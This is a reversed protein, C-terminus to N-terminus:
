LPDCPTQIPNSTQFIQFVPSKRLSFDIQIMGSEFDEGRENGSFFDAVQHGSKFVSLGIGSGQATAESVCYTYAGIRFFLINEGIHPSTSREFIFFKKFESSIRELEVNGVPGFRYAVMSFPESQRDTCISLLKNTKILEYGKKSLPRVESMHANLYAYEGRKCHSPFDKYQQAFVSSCNILFAVSVVCNFFLTFFKKSIQM